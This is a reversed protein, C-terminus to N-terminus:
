FIEDAISKWCVYSNNEHVPENGYEDYPGCINHKQEWNLGQQFQSKYWKGCLPTSKIKASM